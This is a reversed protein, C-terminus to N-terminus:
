EGGGPEEVAEAEVELAPASEGLAKAYLGRLEAIIAKRSMDLGKAPGFKGAARRAAQEAMLREGYIVLWQGAALASKPDKSSQAIRVITNLGQQTLRFGDRDCYQL